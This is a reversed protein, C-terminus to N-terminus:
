RLDELARLEFGQEEVARRVRAEDVEGPDYGIRASGIEVGQVRVGKVDGLAKEVAAVCHGCSMGGITLRSEKM